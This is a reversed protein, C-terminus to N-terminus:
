KAELDPLDSAILKDILEAVGAGRDRSTVWNAQSKLLSLANAVAVSYGCVSMFAHDNEADGVGVTNKLSLGLEDLAVKLGTAKDLGSPLVMVANKNFIVQLDLGLDRIVELVTTEHPRWTAVIVRGVDLPQVGRQQLTKIFKAPPPEGLAKEEGTAPRYLLGGNELVLLDCLNVQPFVQFLEELHRGTVLIFKRGSDRLRKLAALTAEDVCGKTALTGDYDSALALYQM